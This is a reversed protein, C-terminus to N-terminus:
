TILHSDILIHSDTANNTNFEIALFPIYCIIMLSEFMYLRFMLAISLHFLIGMIIGYKRSYKCILFLPLTIELFEGSYTFYKILLPYNSIWNFDFRSAQFHLLFNGMAYGNKWLAMTTKNFGSFFYIICLQIQLFRHSISYLNLCYAIILYFLIYNSIFDSGTSFYISRFLFSVNFIFCYILSFRLLKKGFIIFFSFLILLLYLGIILQDPLNSIFSFALNSGLMKNYFNSDPFGNHLFHQIEFLKILNNILFWIGFGTRFLELSSCNCNFWFNNWAKNM